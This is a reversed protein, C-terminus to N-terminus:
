EHVIQNLANLLFRLQGEKKGQYARLSILRQVNMIAHCGVRRRDVRVGRNHVLRQCRRFIINRKIEQILTHIQGACDKPLGQLQDNYMINYAHLTITPHTGHQAQLMANIGQQLINWLPESYEPCEFVLHMTTEVGGCLMCSDDATEENQVTSLHQKQSTWVQRNMILFSNELTKSSLKLKFINTYGKMFRDLPPVPIGDKRRTFYSPPGPLKNDVANRSMKRFVGSWKKGRLCQAFSGAPAGGLPWRKKSLEKRLKKCKFILHGHRPNIRGTLEADAHELRGTLEGEAFLQAVHTIGAQSLLSGEQETIVYLPPSCEHGAVPATLWTNRDMSNLYQMNAMALLMQSMFPSKKKLKTGNKLWIKEGAMKTLETLDSSQITELDRQLLRFMFTKQEAGLGCQGLLRQLSNLLLARATVRAPDMQLGGMQHSACIRGKAVLRRGQKVRGEKKKTWLLKIVMKDLKDCIDQQVGFAMFLHNYSPILVTSILQKRHFMDIHAANIRNYKAKVGEDVVGFSERLSEGYTHRIEVGLFRIKNTIQV